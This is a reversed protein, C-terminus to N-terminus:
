EDFGRLPLWIMLLGLLLAGCSVVLYITELTEDTM